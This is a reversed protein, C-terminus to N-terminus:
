LIDLEKSQEFHSHTCFARGQKVPLLNLKRTKLVSYHSRGDIIYNSYDTCIMRMEIVWGRGECM